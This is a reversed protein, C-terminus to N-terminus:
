NSCYEDDVPSTDPLTSQYLKETRNVGYTASLQNSLYFAGPVASM